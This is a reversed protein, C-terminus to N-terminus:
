NAGIKKKLWSVHFVQHNKSNDPLKLKYAVYGIKAVVEFPGYRRPLLKLNKRLALYM